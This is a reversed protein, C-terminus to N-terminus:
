ILVKKWVESRKGTIRREKTILSCKGDRYNFKVYICKEQFLCKQICNQPMGHREHAHMSFKSVMFYASRYLGEARQNVVLTMVAVFVLIGNRSM